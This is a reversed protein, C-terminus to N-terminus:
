SAHPMNDNKISNCLHCLPQINSIYDTGGKSLPIIHDETLKIEPERKHCIQCLYDCKMKMEEWEKKSHRGGNGYKLARHARKYSYTKDKNKLRWSKRIEIDKKHKDKDLKRKANYVKQSELWKDRRLIKWKRKQCRTSCCVQNIRIPLFKVKCVLCEKEKQWEFHTYYIDYYVRQRCLASCYIVKKNARLKPTFEKLCFPCTKLM